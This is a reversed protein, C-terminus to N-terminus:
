KSIIASLCRDAIPFIAADNKECFDYVAKKVGGFHYSGFDHIFIYGGKVLRPYFYELGAIIPEYLDTDLSVLCFDDNLGVATDPFFGKRIICNHPYVMKGLVTEVSTDKFRELDSKAVVNRESDFGQFTDFLYLKKEPFYRNFLKSFDGRYVGVEAMNGSVNREKLMGICKRLEIIREEEWIIGNELPEYVVIKEGPIRKEEVLMKKIQDAYISLSIVLLDFELENIKDPSFVQVGGWLNKGWIEPNSDIFGVVEFKEDDLSYLVREGYGSACYIVVKRKM